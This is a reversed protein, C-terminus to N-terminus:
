SVNDNRRGIRPVNKAQKMFFEEIDKVSRRGIRPVNKSIKLFFGPSENGSSSIIFIMLIIFFVKIM